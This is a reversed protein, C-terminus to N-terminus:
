EVDRDCLWVNIDEYIVSSISFSFAAGMYTTITSVFDWELGLNVKVGM